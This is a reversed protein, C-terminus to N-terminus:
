NGRKARKIELKAAAQQLRQWDSLNKYTDITDQNPDYYRIGEALNVELQEPTYQYNGELVRDAPGSAAAAQNTYPNNTRAFSGPRPIRYGAIPTQMQKRIVANVRAMPNVASDFEGLIGQVYSQLESQVRQPATIGVRPQYFALKYDPQEVAAMPDTGGLGRVSTRGQLPIKDAKSRGQRNVDSLLNGFLQTEKSTKRLNDIFANTDAGYYGGSRTAVPQLIDLTINSTNRLSNDIYDATFNSLYAKDLIKGSALLQSEAQAFPLQNILRLADKDRARSFFTQAYQKRANINNYFADAADSALTELQQRPLSVAQPNGAGKAREKQTWPLQALQGTARNLKLNPTRGILPAEGSFDGQLTSTAFKNGAADTVFGVGRSDVGESVRPVEAPQTSIFDSVVSTSGVEFGGPMKNSGVNIDDVEIGYKTATNKPALQGTGVLTQRAQFTAGTPVASGRPRLGAIQVGEASRRIPLVTDMEREQRLAPSFESEITSRTGGVADSVKGPIMTTSKNTRERFAETDVLINGVGETDGFDTERSLPSMLETPDVSPQDFDGVYDGTNPDYVNGQQDYKRSTTYLTDDTRNPNVDVTAGIQSGRVGGMSARAGGAIEMTPNPSVAGGRIQPLEGLFQRVQPIQALQRTSVNPNLLLDSIEELGENKATVAGMIRQNINVDSELPGVLTRRTTTRTAPAGSRTKAKRATQTIVEEGMLNPAVFDKQPDGYKFFGQVLPDQGMDEILDEITNTSTLGRKEMYNLLNQQAKDGAFKTRADRKFQAASVGLNEVEALQEPSLNTTNSVAAEFTNSDTGVFDTDRQINREARGVMQDAGSQFAEQQQDIVGFDQFLKNQRQTRGAEDIIPASVELSKSPPVAESIQEARQSFEKFGEPKEVLFNKGLTKTKGRVFDEVEKYNLAQQTRATPVKAAAVRQVDSLNAVTVGAAPKKSVPAQLLRRAGMGIAGLIGLGLLSNAVINDQGPESEQQKLQNRRFDRVNPALRAREEANKPYDTGTAQSYASFDAPSLTM